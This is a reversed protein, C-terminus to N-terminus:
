TGRGGNMRRLVERDRLQTQTPTTIATGPAINGRYVGTRGLNTAANPGELLASNSVSLLNDNNLFQRLIDRRENNIELIMDTYDSGTFLGGRKAFDLGGRVTDFLDTNLNGLFRYNEQFSGWNSQFDFMNNSRKAERMGLINDTVEKAQEELALKYLHTVGKRTEKYEGNIDRLLQKILNKADNKEKLAERKERLIDSGLTRDYIDGVRIDFKHTLADVFYEKLHSEFYSAAAEDSIQLEPSEGKKLKKAKAKRTVDKLVSVFKEAKCKLETKETHSKCAHDIIGRLIEEGSKEEKKEAVAEDGTKAKKIKDAPIDVLELKNLIKTVNGSMDDSIVVVKANKLGCNVCDSGESKPYYLAETKLKGDKMEKVLVVQYTTNDVMLSYTEFKNPVARRNVADRGEGTSAASANGTAQARLEAAKAAVEADSGAVVQGRAINARELFKNTKAPQGSDSSLHFTGEAGSLKRPDNGSLSFGLASFLTGYLVWKKVQPRM